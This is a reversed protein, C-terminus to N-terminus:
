LIWLEHEYFVYPIDPGVEKWVAGETRTRYSFRVEILDGVSKGHSSFGPVGDAVSHDDMVIAYRTDKMTDM